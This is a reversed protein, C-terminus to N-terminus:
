KTNKEQMKKQYKYFLCKTLLQRFYNKDLNFFIEKIRCLEIVTM